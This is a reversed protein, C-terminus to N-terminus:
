RAWGLDRGILLETMPAHHTNKMPVLETDFGHTKALDLIEPENDYTILFDGALSAAIEFLQRHDLESHKYLRSGARKGAATYPPDIFFVSAPDSGEQQMADLGDGLRFELRAKVRDIDLVRRKLTGPYWRSRIGRGAEGYKLISSGPALIGGRNVRNRLLTQFARDRVSPAPRALEQKVSAESLDFTTIREALWEADGDLMTRWVSAVDEDLEVLLVTDVLDEFAATLGVIAGGAFPEVLRRPKAPQSLLWRRIHPVLWTKGGPYRFPSRLPVTAVNVPRPKPPTEFLTGQRM